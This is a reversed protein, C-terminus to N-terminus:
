GNIGGCLASITKLKTKLERNELLVKDYDERSVTDPTDLRILWNGGKGSRYAPLAGLECQRRVQYPSIGMMEAYKAVKVVHPKVEDM